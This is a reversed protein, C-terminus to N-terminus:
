YISVNDAPKSDACNSNGRSELEELAMALALEEAERAWQAQLGTLLTALNRLRNRRWGGKLKWVSYTRRGSEVIAPVIHLSVPILPAIRRMGAKMLAASLTQPPIHRRIFAMGSFILLGRAAIRLAAFLMDISYGVGWFHAQAGGGLLPMILIGAGIWIWFKGSGLYSLAGKDLLWIIVIFVPVSGLLIWGPLFLGSLILAVSIYGAYKM